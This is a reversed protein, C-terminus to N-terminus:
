ASSLIAAPNRAIYATMVIAVFFVQYETRGSDSSLKEEFHRKREEVTASKINRM